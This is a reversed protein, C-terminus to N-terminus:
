AAAIQWSKRLLASHGGTRVYDNDTRPECAQSASAMEGVGADRKLDQFRRIANASADAGVLELSEQEVAAELHQQGSIGFGLAKELVLCEIQFLESGTRKGPKGAAQVLQNIGPASRAAPTFSKTGIEAAEKVFQPDKSQARMEPVRGDFFNKLPRFRGGLISKTGGSEGVFKDVTEETKKGAAKKQIAFQLGGAAHEFENEFHERFNVGGHGSAAHARNWRLEGRQKRRGGDAQVSVGFREM